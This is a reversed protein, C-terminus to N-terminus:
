PPPGESAAARRVPRWSHQVRLYGKARLRGPRWALKVHNVARVLTGEVAEGVFESAERLHRPWSPAESERIMLPWELLAQRREPRCLGARVLFGRETPGFSRMM